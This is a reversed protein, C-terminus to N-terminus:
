RRAKRAVAAAAMGSHSVFRMGPGMSAAAPAGVFHLGAASSEYATSLRPFGDVREIRALLGPALFPYRTIDIRYGTAAILHDARRESGDDLELHLEDSEERLRRVSAGTTIRVSALRPRLWAAGAPRISRYALSRATDSPLLRYGGPYGMLWNIGPPGVGFRPYLLPRLFGSRDHVREGRLFRLPRRSVVEVTAGADHALVGWELGSQGAGVVLVRRGRLASFDSHASSHTVRGHDVGQLEPPVHV